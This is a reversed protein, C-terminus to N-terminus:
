ALVAIAGVLIVAYGIIKPRFLHTKGGELENESTYRILGEPFGQSRMITNCADVCLGCTICQYQQGERIDIGTPCV